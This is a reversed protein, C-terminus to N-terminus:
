TAVELEEIAERDRSRVSFFQQLAYYVDEKESLQVAVFRDSEISQDYVSLLTGIGRWEPEIQGYGFLNSLCLLDKILEVCRSNDNFANDGDSFHFPYINWDTPDYRQNIIELALEYASSVRTGGSEGQTFFEGESVEKAEIHHSIFIIEVNAYKTRLFRVMWFYFSRAIYKEFVGMSYSVDMIAIVVASSELQVDREWAKYRLDRQDWKGLKTQQGRSAITNRLINQKASRRKDLLSLPGSRRIDNYRVTESELKRSRREELNPLRLDEFILAALEEFDVEVDYYDFGPQTGAGDQGYDEGNIVPGLVDGVKSQGKGQGVHNNGDRDFRFKYEELSRIPLRVTVKGHPTTIINQQSVIQHLNNRVAEKIKEKHREQDRPGKRHLSWDAQSVSMVSM